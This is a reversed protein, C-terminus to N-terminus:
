LNSHKRYFGATFHRVAGHFAFQFTHEFRACKSSAYLERAKESEQHFLRDGAQIARQFLRHDRDRNESAAGIVIWRAIWYNTHFRASQPALQIFIVRM